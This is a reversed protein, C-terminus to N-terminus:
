RGERNSLTPLSGDDRMKFYEAQVHTAQRRKCWHDRGFTDIVGVRKVEAEMFSNEGSWFRLSYEEGVEIKKPLNTFPGDTDEISISIDRLPNILGRKVTRKARDDVEIVAHTITCPIPGHNTITLNLFPDRWPGDGIFGMMAFHVRLDPKPYIFKSWVNWIFGALSVIASCISIILAWDATTM